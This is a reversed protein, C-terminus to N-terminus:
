IKIEFYLQSITCKTPKWQTFIDHNVTRLLDFVGTMFNCFFTDSHLVQSRVLYMVLVTLYFLTHFHCMKVERIYTFTFHLM